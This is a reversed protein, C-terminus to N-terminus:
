MREHDDVWTWITGLQLGPLGARDRVLDVYRAMAEGIQRREARFTDRDWSRSLAADMLRDVERDLERICVGIAKDAGILVGHMAANWATCANEFRHRLDRQDPTDVGGASRPPLDSYALDITVRILQQLASLAETALQIQIDRRWQNHESRHGARIGVMTAVIALTGGALASVVAEM